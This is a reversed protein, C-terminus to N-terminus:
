WFLGKRSLIQDITLSLSGREQVADNAGHCCPSTPSKHYLVAGAMYHVTCVIMFHTRGPKRWSVTHVAHRSNGGTGGPGEATYTYVYQVICAEDTHLDMNGKSTLLAM